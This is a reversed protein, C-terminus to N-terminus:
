EGYGWKAALHLPTEGIDNGANVDVRSRLSDLFLIVKLHHKSTVEIAGYATSHPGPCRLCRCHLREQIFHRNTRGPRITRGIPSSVLFYSKNIFM